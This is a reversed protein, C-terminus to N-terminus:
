HLFRPTSPRGDFFVPRDHETFDRFIQGRVRM